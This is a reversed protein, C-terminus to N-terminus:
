KWGRKTIADSLDEDNASAVFLRKEMITRIEPGRDYAVDGIEKIPVGLAVRSPL